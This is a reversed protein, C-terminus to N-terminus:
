LALSRSEFNKHRLHLLCIPREGEFSVNIAVNCIFAQSGCHRCTWVKVFCNPLLNPVLDRSATRSDRWDGHSSAKASTTMSAETIVHSSLCGSSYATVVATCCRKPSDWSGPALCITM